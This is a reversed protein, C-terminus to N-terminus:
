RVILTDGTLRIDLDYITRLAKVCTEINDNPVGGVLIKNKIEQNEIITSIDYTEELLSLTSELSISDLLLVGEKWSTIVEPKEAVQQELIRNEAASYSLLDGPKMLMRGKKKMDLVISGEDLLVETREQRSNVNFETGLVQIDLDPTTVIFPAGTEPKKEVDFYMEGTMIVQRPNKRIYSLTSNTNMMVQTGDPLEVEMREGYDTHYQVKGNQFIVYYLGGAMILLLVAAAVSWFKKLVVGSSPSIDPLGQVAQDLRAWAADVKQQPIFRQSFPIGLVVTRAEEMLTRTELENQFKEDWIKTAKSQDGKAWAIFTPDEILEELRSKQNKAMHKKDTM